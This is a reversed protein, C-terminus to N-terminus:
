ASTPKEFAVMWRHGAGATFRVRGTWRRGRVDLLWHRPNEEIVDFEGCDWRTVTGRDRSVPGEYTLFDVRHDDLPDVDLLEDVTPEKASAFTRLVEGCEFM